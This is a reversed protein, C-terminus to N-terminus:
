RQLQTPRDEDFKKIVGAQSLTRLCDAYERYDQANMKSLRAVTQRRIKEIDNKPRASSKWPLRHVHKIYVKGAHDRTKEFRLTHTGQWVDTSDSTTTLEAPTELVSNSDDVTGNSALLSATYRLTHEDIIDFDRGQRIPSQSATSTTVAAGVRVKEVLEPLDDKTSPFSTEQPGVPTIEKTSGLSKTARGGNTLLHGLSSFKDRCHTHIRVGADDMVIVSQLQLLVDVGLIFSNHLDKAAYVWIPVLGAKTKIILKIQVRCYFISGGATIVKLSAAKRYSHVLGHQLLQSLTKDNVFSYGSGTDIMTKYQRGSPLSSAQTSVLMLETYLPGQQPAVVANSTEPLRADTLKKIVFEEEESCTTTTAATRCIRDQWVEGNGQGESTVVDETTLSCLTAM